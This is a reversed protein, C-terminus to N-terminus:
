DDLAGGVREAWGLDLTRGWLSLADLMARKHRDHGELALTHRRHPAVTEFVLQDKFRYVRHIQHWPVEFLGVSTAVAVGELGLTLTGRHRREYRWRVLVLGAAIVVLAISPLMPVQQWWVVITGVAVVLVLVLGPDLWLSLPPAPEFRIADATSV